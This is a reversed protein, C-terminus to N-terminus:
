YVTRVKRVVELNSVFAIRQTGDLYRVQCQRGSRAVVLGYRNRERDRVTSGIPPLAVRLDM